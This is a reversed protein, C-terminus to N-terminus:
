VAQTATLYGFHPFTNYRASSFIRQREGKGHKRLRGDAGLTPKCPFLTNLSPLFRLHRGEQGQRPHPSDQM